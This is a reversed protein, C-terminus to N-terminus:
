MTRDFNVASRKIQPPPMLLFMPVSRIIPGTTIAPVYVKEALESYTYKKKPHRLADVDIRLTSGGRGNILYNWNSGANHSGLNISIFTLGRSRIKREKGNIVFDNRLTVQASVTEALVLAFALVVLRKMLNFYHFFDITWLANYIIMNKFITEDM